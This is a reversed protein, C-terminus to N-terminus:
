LFFSAFWRYEMAILILEAMEMDLPALGDDM